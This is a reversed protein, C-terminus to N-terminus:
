AGAGRGALAAPGSGWRLCDLIAEAARAAGGRRLTRHVAAFEGLLERMHDGDELEKLLADGLAAGQVQEQFFEPVLRHGALLNPQSFYPVKVLRLTRLLFATLASVRYAVVMPRGTLLTELTATGSAVLAGDCAALARQAEGDLVRISPRAPVQAIEKMFQARAAASAMPAIFQWPPQLAAIHAAAAAFPAGLRAVEGIRSGPLLAIVRAAPDLELAHRAGERDVSLPIQDALPHGVFVAAVGHERYFETEFPLLCLVLDCSAGITRVRSQRWAWVQPSVYQVTRLGARKLRGALPLNFEPADIGVFVDPAAASFRRWLQARLRLLRPLHQLVEALGMVALDESPAWAECGQALMKPGAVGFCQVGPVRERLAAILAAGLQDGSHEGAVIGVRLPAAPATRRGEAASM